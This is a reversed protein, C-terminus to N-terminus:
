RLRLAASSPRLPFCGYQQEWEVRLAPASPDQDLPRVEGLRAHEAMVSMWNVATLRKIPDPPAKSWHETELATINVERSSGKLALSTKLYQTSQEIFDSPPKRLETMEHSELMYEMMMAFTCMGALAFNIVQLHPAAVTTKNPCDGPLRLGVARACSCNFYRVTVKSAISPKMKKWRPAQWTWHHQSCGSLASQPLCRPLRVARGCAM